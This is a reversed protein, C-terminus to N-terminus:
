LDDALIAAELDDELALEALWRQGLGIRCIAESHAVGDLARHLPGRQDLRIAAGGEHGDAALSDDPVAAAAARNAFGAYCGAIDGHGTDLRGRRPRGDRGIALATRATMVSAPQALLAPGDAAGDAPVVAAGDDVPIGDSGGAEFAGASVSASAVL